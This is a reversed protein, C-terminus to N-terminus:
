QPELMRQIWKPLVVTPDQNQQYRRATDIAIGGMAFYFARDHPLKKALTPFSNFLGEVDRGVKMIDVADYFLHRQKLELDSM